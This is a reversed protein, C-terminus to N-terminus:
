ILIVDKKLGAKIKELKEVVLLLKAENEKLKKIEIMHEDIEKQLAGFKKNIIVNEGKLRAIEDRETTLKKEYKQIHGQVETDNDEELQRLIESYEKARQQYEEQL